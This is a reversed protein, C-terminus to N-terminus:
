SFLSQSAQMNRGAWYTEAERWLQPILSCDIPHHCPIGSITRTRTSKTVALLFGVELDVDIGAVYTPGTVRKLKAVDAKTVKVNLKRKVGRGMYGMTTAKVQVFLTAEGCDPDILYVIFDKTETKDGLFACDFWFRGDCKKGILFAFVTEGRKGIRDKMNM